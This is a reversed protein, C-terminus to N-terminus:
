SKRRGSAKLALDIQALVAKDYMVCESPGEAKGKEFDMVLGQRVILAHEAAELAEILKLRAVAEIHIPSLVGVMKDRSISVLDEAFGNDLRAQVMGEHERVIEAAVLVKM